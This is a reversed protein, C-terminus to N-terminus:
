KDVAPTPICTISFMSKINCGYRDERLVRSTGSHHRAHIRLTHKNIMCVCVCMENHSPEYCCVCSSIFSFLSDIKNHTKLLFVVGIIKIEM